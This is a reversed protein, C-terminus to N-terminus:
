DARSRDLFVAETRSTAGLKRLINSVHVSATKASIFLRESIQRNSLGEAILDLVQRERATLATAVGSDRVDGALSLHGLREELADLRRLVFGASARVAEQRADGAVQLATHRHSETALAEAQRTRAYPLLHRPVQRSDVSAVARHWTASSDQLEARVLAAYAGATPWADMRGLVEEFRSRIESSEVSPLQAEVARFARSAIALWPLDLSAFDLHNRELVARGHQWAQAPRGCELSIETAITALLRDLRADIRAQQRLGPTWEELLADALAFEGHVLLSRLKLLRIDSSFGIPADLELSRDLLEDAEGLRGLSLLPGVTNSAFMVGSTREVGRASARAAGARAVDISEDFRGLMALADSYNVWFRMMASDNDEALVGALELDALGEAIGGISLTSMGRINAAVSM